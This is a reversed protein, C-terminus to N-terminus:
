GPRARAAASPTSAIWAKEVCPWSQLQRLIPETPVNKPPVIQIGRALEDEAPSRDRKKAMAPVQFKIRTYKPLDARPSFPNEGTAVFRRRKPEYTWGQRLRVILHDRASLHDRVSVKKNTM